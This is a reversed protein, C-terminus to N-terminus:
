LFERLAVRTGEANEIWPEHGARPVVVRTVNPLAEVLSDCAWAPRPDGEGLLVLAPVDLTRCRAVLSQEDLGFAEANLAMNVDTGIPFREDVHRGALEHAQVRDFYNTSETLLRLEREEEATLEGRPRLEQYREAHPGLRRLREAGYEQRPGSSWALGTGCLYLLAGVLSPHALAYHLALSAGWSHGGVVWSEYGFHHRVADLDAVFREVTYPGVGSSRGAGRQDWLHVTYRDDLMAALPELTNWYGPGGHCLVLPPGAGTTAVWLRAGDDATIFTETM